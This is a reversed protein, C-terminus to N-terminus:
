TEEGDDEAFSLGRREQQERKQKKKQKREAREQEERERKTAAEAELAERKERFSSASVLGVTQAALEHEVSEDAKAFRGDDGGGNLASSLTSTWAAASMSSAALDKIFRKESKSQNRVVKLAQEAEKREASNREVEEYSGSSALRHGEEIVTRLREEADRVAKPANAKSQVPVCTSSERQHAEMAEPASSKLMKGCINCRGSTAGLSMSVAGAVVNSM